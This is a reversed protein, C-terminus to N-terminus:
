KGLKLTKNHVFVLWIELSAQYSPMIMEVGFICSDYARKEPTGYDTQGSSLQYLAHCVVVIENKVLVITLIILWGNNGIFGM